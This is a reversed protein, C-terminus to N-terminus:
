QVLNLQSLGRVRERFREIGLMESMVVGSDNFSLTQDFDSVFLFHRRTMGVEGATRSNARVDPAVFAFRRECSARHTSFFCVIHLHTNVIRNYKPHVLRTAM